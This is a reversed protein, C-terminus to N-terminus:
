SPLRHADDASRSAAQAKLVEYAQELRLLEHELAAAHAREAHLELDCRELRRHELRAEADRQQSRRREDQEVRREGGRLGYDLLLRALTLAAAIIAGGGISHWLFDSDM